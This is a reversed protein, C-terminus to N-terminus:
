RLTHSSDSGSIGGGSYRKMEFVEGREGPRDSSIESAAHGDPAKHVRGLARGATKRDRQEEIVGFRM